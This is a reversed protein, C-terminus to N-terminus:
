KVKGEETLRQQKKEEALRFAKWRYYTNMWIGYITICLLIFAVLLVGFANISEITFWDFRIGVITLFSLLASLVTVVQKVLDTVKQTM